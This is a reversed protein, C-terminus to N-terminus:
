CLESHNTSHKSTAIHSVYVVSTDDMISATHGIEGKENDHPNNNRKRQQARNAQEKNLKNTLALLVLCSFLPSLPCGQPFGEDQKLYKATKHKDFYWQNCTHTTLLDFLPVLQTTAENELLIKRAETRSVNNFMNTLDLMVLARSQPKSQETDNNNNSNENTKNRDIYQRVVMATTQAVFASSDRITRRPAPTPM